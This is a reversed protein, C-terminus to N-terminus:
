STKDLLKMGERLQDDDLHIYVKETVDATPSHGILKKLVLPNMGAKNALSAFTHRCCHPTYESGDSTFINLAKLTPKFCYNTFYGQTFPVWEGDKNRSILRPGNHAAQEDLYPKIKLEVPVTRNKGAKTKKGGILTLESPNYDEITMELLEGIRWGTYILIVIIRSYMFNREAADELIAIQEETFSERQKSEIDPIEVFEAYNKNIVDYQIAYKEVFGAILKINKLTPKSYGEDAMKDIIDQFHGTRLDRVKKNHIPSLSKFALSYATQASASLKSYNKAKWCKWMEEFTYNTKPSRFKNWEALAKLADEYTEYYGLCERKMHNPDELPPPPLYAGFPRQRNGGLKKITGYDNPLRKM